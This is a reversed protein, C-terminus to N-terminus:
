LGRSARFQRVVEAVDQHQADVALNMTRMNDATVKGALRNLAVAIQPWRRLSDERVLPVAEYPPFYHRDDELAVFDLARIAGDTSNGAVIDVQHAALSRYLLGLEMTRPDGEFHLNYATSLGRLGDPREAFEYGVGLHWHPAYPLIDTITRLHLRRADSGRIVMAFTDQFGLSPFVRINYRQAYLRTITADVSTPDRDLPQKLIATLATGTYEVYADIRNSILAQQCLYSGALWFRREVPGGGSAEIEQALLEGLIVQETFDKAGIVIHSSRPPACATLTLLILTLAAFVLAQPRPFFPRSPTRTNAPQRTRRSRNACIRALRREPHCIMASRYSNM